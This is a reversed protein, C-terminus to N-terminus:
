HKILRAARMTALWEERVSPDVDAEKITYSLRIRDRTGDVLAVIEYQDPFGMCPATWSEYILHDDSEEVLNWRTSGPCEEERIEQLGEFFDMRSQGLMRYIRLVSMLEHWSEVDEGPPVFEDLEGNAVPASYGLEWTRGTPPTFEFAEPEAFVTYACGGGGFALLAIVGLTAPPNRFPIGM